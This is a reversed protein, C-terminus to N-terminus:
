DHKVNLIFDAAKQAQAGATIALKSDGKLAESWNALNAASNELTATEIGSHGCLFAATMEAVLEERSYDSDGFRIESKTIGKRNLRSSHGTAHGLEHFLTSYYEEGKSFFEPEPMKVKDATPMYCARGGGHEIEPRQPMNDAVLEAERIPEHERVPEPAAPNEIGECQEINFVRYYRYFGAKSESQKETKVRKGNADKYIWSFFVVPTSKEGKRISGGLEKAQNFTLWYPSAYQSFALMFQNIGRYQKKSKMNLAFGGAAGAWPKRWPATGSELMTILQETIIDHVTKKM